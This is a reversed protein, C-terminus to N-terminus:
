IAAEIATNLETDSVAEEENAKEPVRERMERMEASHKAADKTTRMDLFRFIKKENKAAEVVAEHGEGDTEYAIWSFHSSDFDRRGANESRSITYALQIKEPAGEAVVTGKSTVVEKIGEFARKADSESLEPDLHFALEYVRVEAADEAEMLGADKEEIDKKKAM